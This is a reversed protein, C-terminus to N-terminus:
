YVIAIDAIAIDAIPAKGSAIDDENDNEDKGIIEDRLNSGNCYHVNKHELDYYMLSQELIACQSVTLRCQRITLSM